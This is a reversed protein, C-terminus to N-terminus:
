WLMEFTIVYDTAVFSQISIQPINDCKENVHQELQFQIDMM